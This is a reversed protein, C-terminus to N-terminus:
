APRLAQDLDAILDQADEIGISLRLLNQPTPTDPGEVSARHEILSEVGGLSTARTFLQTRAAVELAEAAAGKIGVSVIAGFGRMQRAAVAHGPDDELGPYYVREVRPHQRLFRAIELANACQYKVRLPLTAIGRRILWCDFPSPVGGAIAQYSRIRASSPSRVRAVIAGGMVDSHGGFYKTSSHMVFDAGLDLPRQMIPTAFTNDCALLAGHRHARAAVAAIDTIGLTPNCPTEIWILRTAPRLQADIETPRSANVFAVEVGWGQVIDRLQQRTGYYSELPAIVHDGPKLLSFVAMSAASGSAFCVAEEGGELAALCNELAHRTPNDPRSYSFSRSFGGDADREFTTSMQLPTAVAGTVTDIQRGAHVALTEPKM